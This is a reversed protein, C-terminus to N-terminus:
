RVSTTISALKVINATERPVATARPGPVYIMVDVPQSILTRHPSRLDGGDIRVMAGFARGTAAGALLSRAGPPNFLVRDAAANKADVGVPEGPGLHALDPFHV